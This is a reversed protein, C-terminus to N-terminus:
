REGALAAAPAPASHDISEVAGAATDPVLRSSSTAAPRHIEEETLAEGDRHRASCIFVDVYGCTETTDDFDLEERIEVIPGHCETCFLPEDLSLVAAYGRRASM